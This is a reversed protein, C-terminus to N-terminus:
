KTAGNLALTCFPQALRASPDSCFGTVWHRDRPNAYGVTRTLNLLDQWTAKSDTALTMLDSSRFTLSLVQASTVFREIGPTPLRAVFRIDGRQEAPFYRQLGQTVTLAAKALDTVASTEYLPASQDLVIELTGGPGDPLRAVYGINRYLAAVTLPPDDAVADDERPLHWAWACAVLIAGMAVTLTADKRRRAAKGSIESKLPGDAM